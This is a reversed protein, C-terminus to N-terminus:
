NPAVQCLLIDKNTQNSCKKSKQASNKVIKQQMKPFNYVSFNWESILQGKLANLIENHHLSTTKWEYKGTAINYVWKGGFNDGRAQNRIETQGHNDPSM